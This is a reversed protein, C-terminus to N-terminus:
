KGAKLQDIRSQYYSNDPNLQLAAEYETLAEATQGNSVLAGALDSHYSANKPSAKAAERYESVVEDPAVRTLVYREYIEPLTPRDAQHCSIFGTNNDALEELDRALYNHYKGAYLPDTGLGYCKRWTELGQAIQGDNVLIKGLQYVVAFDPQAGDMEVARLMDRSAGAKDGDKWRRKARDAYAWEVTFPVGPAHGEQHIEAAKKITDESLSDLPKAFNYDHMLSMQRKTYDDFTNQQVDPYAFACMVSTKDAVHFAGFQHCCEHAITSIVEQEKDEAGKYPDYIIVWNYYFSSFGLVDSRSARGTVGIILESDELPVDEAVKAMITDMYKDPDDSDKFEPTTWPVITVDLKINFNTSLLQSVAQMRKDLSAQWGDRQQFVQDAAVKVKLTRLGSGDIQVTARSVPTSRSPATAYQRSMWVARGSSDIYGTQNGIRVQALGNDFDLAKDYKSPIALKGTKDIYGWKDGALVPAMGGRFSMVSAYKAEAVQKGTKDIFGWLGSMKVAALGESFCLAAQYQPAIVPKNARGIFGWKDGAKVACLGEPTFGGVADYAPEIVSKGEADVFGFKSDKKVPLLGQSFLWGADDYQTTVIVKGSSDVVGYKGDKRVVALSDGLFSASDFQPGIIQNGSRDFFGWKEKADGTLPKAAITNDTIWGIDRFGPELAFKGTKDILGWKILEGRVRAVGNQFNYATGFQPKIVFRGATDIYGYPTSFYPSTSNFEVAALGESFAQADVYKEPIVMKGASDIYGYRTGINTPALGDHFVGTGSDYPSVITMTGTKDIFGFEKNRWAQAVGESFSSANHLDLAIIEKGTADIYGYVLSKVMKVVRGEDDRLVDQKLVGVRALGDSFTQADDYKPQIVWQGSKDIFGYKAGSCAPAMGGSFSGAKDFQASVVSAGTKDIYGWKGNQKVAILGESCQGMDEYSPQIVISGSKDIAGFKGEVTVAALGEAFLSVIDYTPQIVTTGTRDLFGWVKGIKVPALGDSFSGADDYRPAIIMKGTADIFGYRGDLRVPALGECFDGAAEYGSLVVNGSKDIYGWRFDESVPFLTPPVPLVAPQRPAPKQLPKPLSKTQQRAPATAATSPGHLGPCLLVLTFVVAAIIKRTKM